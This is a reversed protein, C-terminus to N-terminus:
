SLNYLHHHPVYAPQGIVHPILKAHAGDHSVGGKDSLDRLQRLPYLPLPSSPYCIPGAVGRNGVVVMVSRATLSHLAINIIICHVGRIVIFIAGRENVALSVSPSPPYLMIGGVSWVMYLMICPLFRGIIFIIILTFTIIIFILIFKLVVGCIYVIVGNNMPRALRGACWLLTSM